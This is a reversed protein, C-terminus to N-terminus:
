NPHWGCIAYVNDYKDAFDTGVQWDAPYVGLVVIKEGGNAKALDM